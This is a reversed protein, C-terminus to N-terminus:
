VKRTESIFYDSVWPNGFLKFTPDQHPCGLIHHFALLDGKFFPHKSSSEHNKRPAFILRGIKLPSRYGNTKLSDRWFDRLSWGGMCGRLGNKQAFFPSRGRWCGSLVMPDMYTYGVNVWSKGILNWGNMSWYIHLRGTSGDHTIWPMTKRLYM